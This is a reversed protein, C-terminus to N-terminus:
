QPLYVLRCGVQAHAIDPDIDAVHASRTMLTPTNWSGGRLGGERTLEAANGHMDYFGLGNPSRSGVSECGRVGAAVEWSRCYTATTAATYDSGWSFLTSNGARCALEWEDNTPLRFQYAVRSSWSNLASVIQSHTAGVMPADSAVTVDGGPVTTTLVSWPSTGAIRQWQAQTLEFAALYIPGVSVSRRPPDESGGIASNSAGVTGNTQVKRFVILYDRYAANTRLDSVKALSTIQGNRLDVIQYNATLLGVDGTFKKDSDGSGTCGCIAICLLAIGFRTLTNM